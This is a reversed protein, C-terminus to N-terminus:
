PTETTRLEYSGTLYIKGGPADGLVIVGPESSYVGASSPLPLPRVFRAEMRALRACDGSLRTRILAEASEAFMAFGHLICGPFGAARAYAPAWHIPNYDGTLKAFDLGANAPFRRFSLEEAGIPVRPRAAEPRDGRPRRALPLHGTVTTELADPASRTGTTVEVTIRASHESTEVARLRARLLLREGVPLPRHIRMSCGANLIRMLPYPTAAFVRSTLAFTWQPFLHPPIEAGYSNPDSGLYRLYDAILAASPPDVEGEFSRSPLAALAEADAVDSARRLRKMWPAVAAWGLARLTPGQGWLHRYSVSM